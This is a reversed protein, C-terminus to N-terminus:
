EDPRKASGAEPDALIFYHEDISRCRRHFRNSSKKFARGRQHQATQAYIGSADTHREGDPGGCAAMLGTLMRGEEEQVSANYGTM